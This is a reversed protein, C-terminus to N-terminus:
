NREFSLTVSHPKTHCVETVTNRLTGWASTDVSARMAFVIIESSTHFLQKQSTSVQEDHALGVKRSCHDQDLPDFSADIGNENKHCISEALRSVDGVFEDPIVAVGLDAFEEKFNEEERQSIALMEKM